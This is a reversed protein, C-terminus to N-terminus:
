PGHNVVLVVSKFFRRKTEPSMCGIYRFHKDGTGIITLKAQYCMPISPWQASGDADAFRTVLSIEMMASNQPTIREM